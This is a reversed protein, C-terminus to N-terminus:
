GVTYRFDALYESAWERVSDHLKEEEQLLLGQHGDHCKATLSLLSDYETDLKQDESSITEYNFTEMKEGIESLSKFYRIDINRGHQFLARVESLFSDILGYLSTEFLRLVQFIFQM